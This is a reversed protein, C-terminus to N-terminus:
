GKRASNEPAKPDDQLDDPPNEPCTTSEQEQAELAGLAESLREQKEPDKLQPYQRGLEALRQRFWRRAELEDNPWDVNGPTGSPTWFPKSTRLRWLRKAMLRLRSATPCMAVRRRAKRKRIPWHRLPGSASPKGSGSRWAGWCM